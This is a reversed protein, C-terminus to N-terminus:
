PRCVRVTRGDYKKVETKVVDEDDLYTGTIFAGLSGLVGEPTGVDEITANARNTLRVLPSVIV